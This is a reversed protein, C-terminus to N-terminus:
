GERVLGSHVIDAALADLARSLARVYATYDNPAEVPVSTKFIRSTIGDGSKGSIITYIASIEVNRNLEGDLREFVVQIRLTEDAVIKNLVGAAHSACRLELNRAVARTLPEAWRNTESRSVLNGNRTVIQPVDLYSPITIRGFPIQLLPGDTAPVSDASLVYHKRLNADSEVPFVSLNCGPLLLIALVALASVLIKEKIKKM